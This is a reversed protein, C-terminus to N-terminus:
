SEIRLFIDFDLQAPGVEFCDYRDCTNSSEFQLSTTITAALYPPITAVTVFSGNTDPKTLAVFPTGSDTSLSATPVRRHSSYEM